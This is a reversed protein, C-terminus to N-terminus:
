EKVRLAAVECQVPFSEACPGGIWVEVEDGDALDESPVAAGDSGLILPDGRLLDMGEYYPDSPDALTASGPEDTLAVRGTVDPPRDPVREAAGGASTAPLALGLIVARPRTRMSRDHGM